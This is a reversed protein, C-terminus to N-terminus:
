KIYRTLKNPMFTMFGYAGLNLKYSQSIVSLDTRSGVLVLCPHYLITHGYTLDNLIYSKGIVTKIDYSSLKM